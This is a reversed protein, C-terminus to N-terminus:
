LPLSQQRTDAETAAEDLRNETYWNLRRLLEVAYENPLPGFDLMDASIRLLEKNSLTRPKIGQM